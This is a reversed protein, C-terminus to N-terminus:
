HQQQQQLEPQRHSIISKSMLVYLWFPEDRRKTFYKSQQHSRRRLFCYNFEINSAYLGNKHQLVFEDPMMPVAM